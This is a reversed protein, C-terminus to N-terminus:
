VSARELDSDILECTRLYCQHVLDHRNTCYNYLAARTIGVRKAISGLEAGAVGALTFERTAEDLVAAHRAARAEDILSRMRARRKRPRGVELSRLGAAM